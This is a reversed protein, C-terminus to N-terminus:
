DILLKIKYSKHSLRTKPNKAENKMDVIEVQPLKANPNARKSLTLLQYVNKQARARSELSPTASGLVIPCHHFQGRWIAIDRAHYRPAEDQKYSSEHEEDIIIM